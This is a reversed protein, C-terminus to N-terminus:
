DDVFGIKFFAHLLTVNKTSIFPSKFYPHNLRWLVLVSLVNPMNYACLKDILTKGSFFVEIHCVRITFIKHWFHLQEPVKLDHSLQTYANCFSKWECQTVNM